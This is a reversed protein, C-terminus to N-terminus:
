DKIVKTKRPKKTNKTNIVIELHNLADYENEYYKQWDTLLHVRFNRPNNKITRFRFHNKKLLDRTARINVSVGKKITIIM